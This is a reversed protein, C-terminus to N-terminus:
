DAALTRLLEIAAVTGIAGARRLMLAQDAADQLRVECPRKDTVPPLPQPEHRDARRWFFIRM